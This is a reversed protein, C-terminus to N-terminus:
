QVNGQWKPRAITESFRGFLLGLDIAVFPEISSPTVIRHELYGPFIVLSGAGAEVSALSADPPESTTRPPAIIHAQARPDDFELRSGTEPARVMYIGCLFANAARQFSFDAGGKGTQVSCSVVELPGHTVHLFSLAERSREVFLAVLPALEELHQLDTESRWRQRPGSCAEAPALRSVIGDVVRGMAARSEDSLRVSWVLSPFLKFVDTGAIGQPTASM